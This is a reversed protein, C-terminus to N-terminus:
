SGGRKECDELNSAVRRDLVKGRKSNTMDGITLPGDRRRKVFAANGLLDKNAVDQERLASSEQLLGPGRVVYNGSRDLPDDHTDGVIKLYVDTPAVIVAISVGDLVYTAPVSCM